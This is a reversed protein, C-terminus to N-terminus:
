VRPCKFFDLVTYFLSMCQRVYCSAGYSVRLACWSLYTFSLSVQLSQSEKGMPWCYSHLMFITSCINMSNNFLNVITVTLTVFVPINFIYFVPCMHLVRIVMSCYRQPCIFFPGLHSSSINMSAMATSCSLNNFNHVISNCICIICLTLQSTYILVDFLSLYSSLLWTEGICWFWSALQVADSTVVGGHFHGHFCGLDEFPSVFVLDTHSQILM